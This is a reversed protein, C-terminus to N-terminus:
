FIYISKSFVISNKRANYSNSFTTMYTKSFKCKELNNNYYLIKLKTLFMESKIQIYM